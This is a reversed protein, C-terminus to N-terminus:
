PSYNVVRQIENTNGATDIAKISITNDGDNLSQDSSFNGDKDVITQNGSIFVKAGPDTKGAVKVKKDGGQVKKNDDPESIQLNPKENDFVLKITKSPLSENGKGASGPVQEDDLTKGYINNTGLSLSVDKFTFSGDSSVDVTDKVEDDIYLKVKLNPTGYGKIDIQASNTAEYPINLVPPALAESLPSAITKQSPKVIDKVTSVGGIFSPLIWKLTAYILFGVM